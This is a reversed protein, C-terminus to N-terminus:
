AEVGEGAILADEEQMAIYVPVGVESRTNAYRSHIGKHACRAFDKLAQGGM